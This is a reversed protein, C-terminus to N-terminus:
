GNIPLVVICIVFSISTPLLFVKPRLSSSSLETDKVSRLCSEGVDYAVGGEAPDSCRSCRNKVPPSQDSSLMVGASDDHDEVADSDCIVEENLDYEERLRKGGGFLM